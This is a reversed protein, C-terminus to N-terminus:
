VRAHRAAVEFGFRFKLAAWGLLSLTVWSWVQWSLGSVRSGLDSMPDDFALQLAGQRLRSAPCDLLLNGHADARTSCGPAKWNEHYAQRLVLQTRSAEGGTAPCEVKVSIHSWTSFRAHVLPANGATRWEQIVGGVLSNGAVIDPRKFDDMDYCTSVGRTPAIIEGQMQDGQMAVYEIEESGNRFYNDPAVSRFRPSHLWHASLTETQFSVQLILAIGLFIHQRRSVPCNLVYKWLAAAGLFGWYRGTVGISRFGPLPRLLDFPSLWVPVHLGKLSGMGLVLSALSVVLLPRKM